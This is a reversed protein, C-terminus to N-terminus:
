ESLLCRKFQYLCPVLQKVFPLSILSSLLPECPVAVICSSYLRTKALDRGQCHLPYRPPLCVPLWALDAPLRMDLKLFLYDIVLHLSLVFNEPVTSVGYATMM